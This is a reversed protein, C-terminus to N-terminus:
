FRHGYSGVHDRFRGSERRIILRRLLRNNRGLYGLQGPSHDYVNKTPTLRPKTSPRRELDAYQTQLCEIVM